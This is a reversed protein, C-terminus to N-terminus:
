VSRRVPDHVQLLRVPDRVDDPGAAIERQRGTCQRGLRLPDDVLREAVARDQAGLANGGALVTGPRDDDVPERGGALLELQGLPLQAGHCLALRRPDRTLGAAKPVVRPDAPVDVRLVEVLGVVGDAPDAVRERALVLEGHAHPVLRHRQGSADDVREGREVRATSRDLGDDLQDGRLRVQKRVGRPGEVRRFGRPALVDLAGDTAGLGCHV